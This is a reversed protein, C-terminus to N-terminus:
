DRQAYPTVYSGLGARRTLAILLNACHTYYFEADSGCYAMGRAEQSLRPNVYVMRCRRRRVWRFGRKVLWARYADSQFPPCFAHETWRAVALGTAPDLWRAHREDRLELYQRFAQGTRM